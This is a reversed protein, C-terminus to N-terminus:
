TNKMFCGILTIFTGNNFCGRVVRDICEGGEQFWRGFALSTKDNYIIRPRFSIDTDQVLLGFHLANNLGRNNNPNVQLDMEKSTDNSCVRDFEIICSGKTWKEGTKTWIGYIRYGADTYLYTINEVKRGNVEGLADKKDLISQLEEDSLTHSLFENGDVVVIQSKRHTAPWGMDKWHTYKTGDAEVKMDMYRSYFNPHEFVFEKRYDEWETVSRVSCSYGGQDSENLFKYPLGGSESDFREIKSSNVFTEWWSKVKPNSYGVYPDLRYSSNSM